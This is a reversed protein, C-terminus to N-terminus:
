LLCDRCYNNCYTRLYCMYLNEIYTLRWGYAFPLLFNVLSCNLFLFYLAFLFFRVRNERLFFFAVTAAGSRPWFCALLGAGGRKQYIKKKGLRRDIGKKKKKQWFGSLWSVFLRRGRTTKPKRDNGGAMKKEKKLRCCLAGGQKNEEEEAAM